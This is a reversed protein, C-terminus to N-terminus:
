AATIKDGNLRAIAGLIAQRELEALPLVTGREEKAHTKNAHTVAESLDTCHIVPGSNMACAREICNELERVNGPWDYAVLVRMADESIQYRRGCDRSLREMFSNVLLPIDECRERLPPVRLSLVNLRFYLDQRFAGQAVAQELDRNT